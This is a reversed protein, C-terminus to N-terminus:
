KSEDLDGSFGLEKQTKFFQKRLSTFRRLSHVGEQIAISPFLQDVGLNYLAKWSMCKFYPLECSAAAKEALRYYVIARQRNGTYSERRATIFLRICQAIPMIDAFKKAREEVRLFDPGPKMIDGLAWLDYIDLLRSFSSTNMARLGHKVAKDREGRAKWLWAMAISTAKGSANAEFM